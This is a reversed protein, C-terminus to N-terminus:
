QAAVRGETRVELVYPRDLALAEKMAPQIEDPQTICRGALGMGRAIEVFDLPPDTLDM